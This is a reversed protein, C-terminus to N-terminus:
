ISLARANVARGGGRQGHSTRKVNIRQVQSRRLAKYRWPLFTSGRTRTFIKVYFRPNQKLVGGVYSAWHLLHDLELERHRPDVVHHLVLAHQAQDKAVHHEGFLRLM